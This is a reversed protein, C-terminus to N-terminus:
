VPCNKLQTLVDSHEVIVVDMKQLARAHAKLAEATIASNASDNYKAYVSFTKVLNSLATQMRVQHRTAAIHQTSNPRCQHGSPIAFLKHKLVASRLADIDVQHAEVLSQAVLHSNTKGADTVPQLSLRLQTMLAKLENEHDTMEVDYSQRTSATQTESPTQMGQTPSALMLAMVIGLSLTTPSSFLPKCAM